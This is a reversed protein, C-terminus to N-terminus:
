LTSMRSRMRWIFQYDCKVLVTRITEGSPEPRFPRPEVDPCIASDVRCCRVVKSSEYRCVHQMSRGIAPSLGVQVFGSPPPRMRTNSLRRHSSEGGLTTMV